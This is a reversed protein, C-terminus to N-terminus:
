LHGLSQLIWGDRIGMLDGLASPFCAVSLVPIVVQNNDVRHRCRGRCIEM